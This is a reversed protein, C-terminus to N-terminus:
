SGYSKYKVPVGDIEELFLIITIAPHINGVLEDSSQKLSIGAISVTARIAQRSAMLQDLKEITEDALSYAHMKVFVTTYVADVPASMMRKTEVEHIAGYKFNLDVVPLYLGGSWINYVRETLYRFPVGDGVFTRSTEEKSRLTMQGIEIRAEKLDLAVEVSTFETVSKNLLVKVESYLRSAVSWPEDFKSYNARLYVYTTIESLHSLHYTHNTAIAPNITATTLVLMLCVTTVARRM